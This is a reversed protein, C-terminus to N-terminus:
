ATFTHEHMADEIDALELFRDCVPDWDGANGAVLCEGFLRAQRQKYRAMTLDGGAKFFAAYDMGRRAQAPFTFITLFAHSRPPLEDNRLRKAFDRIVEGGSPTERRISDFYAMAAMYREDPTPTSRVRLDLWRHFPGGPCPLDDARWSRELDSLAMSAAPFGLPDHLYVREDDIAYAVVYHDAGRAHQHYPFYRLYGMDLPGLLVPGTTLEARLIAAVDADAPGSRAMCDLGLLDLARVLRDPSPVLSFYLKECEPESVLHGGMLSIGTLVEILGSSIGQVGQGSVFMAAADAYCYNVNGHYEFAGSLSEGPTGAASFEM